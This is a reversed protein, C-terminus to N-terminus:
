PLVITREATYGLAISYQLEYPGRPRASEAAERVIPVRPPPAGDAFLLTAGPERENGHLLRRVLRRSERASLRQVM